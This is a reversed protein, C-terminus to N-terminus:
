KLSDVMRRAIRINTIMRPIGILLGAVLGVLAGIFIELTQQNSPFVIIGIVFFVLLFLFGAIYTRQQRTKIYVARKIADAVPMEVLSQSRIYRTFMFSNVAAVLGFAAYLLAYWVPLDLKFVLAPALVPLLFGIYGWRQIRGALQQQLNTIKGCALRQTLKHNIDELVDARASLEQWKQKLEDLNDTM